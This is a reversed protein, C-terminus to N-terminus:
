YFRRSNDCLMSVVKYVCFAVPYLYTDFSNRMCVHIKNDIKRFIRAHYSSLFVLFLSPFPSLFSMRFRRFVFGYFVEFPWATTRRKKRNTFFSFFYAAQGPHASRPSLDRIAFLSFLLLYRRSFVFNVTVYLFPLYSSPRELLPVRSLTSQIYTGCAWRANMKGICTCTLTFPLLSLLFSLM